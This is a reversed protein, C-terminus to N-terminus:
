GRGGARLMDCSTFEVQCGQGMRGVKNLEMLRPLESLVVDRKELLEADADGVSEGGEPDGELVGHPADPAVSSPPKTLMTTGTKAVEERIFAFM